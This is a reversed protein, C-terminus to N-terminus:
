SDVAGTASPALGREVLEAEEDLRVAFTLACIAVEIQEDDPQRTTLKQLLLNPVVLWKVLWNEPHLGAYRIFEYSLSAILPILIIRSAVVLLFPNRPIFLFVLIAVVM